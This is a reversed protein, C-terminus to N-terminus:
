PSEWLSSCPDKNKKPIYINKLCFFLFNGFIKKKTSLFFPILNTIGVNMICGVLFFYNGLALLSGDFFLLIGFVMFGLGFGVFIFSLDKFFQDNMKKKKINYYM